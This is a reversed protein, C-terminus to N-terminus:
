AFTLVAEGADGVVRHLVLLSGPQLLGGAELNTLLELTIRGAEEGSRVQLFIGGSALVKRKAEPDFNADGVVLSIGEEEPSDAFVILESRGRLNGEVVERYEEQPYIKFQRTLSAGPMAKLPVLGVWGELDLSRTIASLVTRLSPFREVLDVIADEQIFLAPDTDATAQQFVADLKQLGLGRREPLALGSLRKELEAQRLSLQRVVGEGAPTLIGRGLIGNLHRLDRATDHLHIRAVPYIAEREQIGSSSLLDMWMEVATHYGDVEQLYTLPFRTHSIRSRQAHPFQFAGEQVLDEERWRRDFRHHAAEHTLTGKIYDRRHQESRGPIPPYPWRLATRGVYDAMGLGQQLEVLRVLQTFEEILQASRPSDRKLEQFLEGLFALDEDRNESSVEWHVSVTTSPLFRTQPFILAAEAIRRGLLRIEDRLLFMPSGQELFQVARARSTMVSPWQELIGAFESPVEALEQEAAEVAAVIQPEGSFRSKVRDLLEKTEELGASDSILREELGAGKGQLHAEMIEVQHHLNLDLLGEGAKPLEYHIEFKELFHDGSGPLSGMSYSVRPYRIGYRKPYEVSVKTSYAPARNKALDLLERVVEPPFRSLMAQFAEKASPPAPTEREEQLLTELREQAKMDSFEEYTIVERDKLEATSPKGTLIADLVEPDVRWPNKRGGGEYFGYRDIYGTLGYGILNGADDEGVDGGVLMSLGNNQNTIHIHTTWSANDPSRPQGRDPNVLISTQFGRTRAYNIKLPQGLYEIESVGTGALQGLRTIRMLHKGYWRHTKGLGFEVNRDAKLVDKLNEDRGLFGSDADAGPRARREIEEIPVGNIETLQDIRRLEAELQDQTWGAAEQRSEERNLRNFRSLERQFDEWAPGEKFVAQGPPAARDPARLLGYFGGGVTAGLLVWLAWRAVPRALLSRATAKSADRDGEELGAATSEDQLAEELGVQVM